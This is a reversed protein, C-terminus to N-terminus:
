RRRKINKIVDDVDKVTFRDDQMTLIIRELMDRGSTINKISWARVSEILEEAKQTDCDSNAM